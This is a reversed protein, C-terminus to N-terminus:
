FHMHTVCVSVCVYVCVYVCACLCVCVCVYIYIRMCACMHIFIYVGVSMYVGEGQVIHLRRDRDKSWEMVGSGVHQVMVHPLVPSRRAHDAEQQVVAIM